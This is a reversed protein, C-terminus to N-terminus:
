CTAMGGCASPYHGAQQFNHYRKEPPQAPHVAVDAPLVPQTLTGPAVFPNRATYRAALVYHWLPKANQTGFWRGWDDRNRGFQTPGSESELEGTDPRFRFDRSGM